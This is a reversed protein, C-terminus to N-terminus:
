KKRTALADSSARHFAYYGNRCVLGLGLETALMEICVNTVPDSSEKVALLADQVSANKLRQLEAKLAAIFADIKQDRHRRAAELRDDSGSLQQQKKESEDM